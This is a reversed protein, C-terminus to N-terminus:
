TPTDGRNRHYTNASKRRTRAKELSDRRYMWWRQREQAEKARWERRKEMYKNWIWWPACQITHCGPHRHDCDKCPCTHPSFKTKEEGDM